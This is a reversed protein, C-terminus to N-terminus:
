ELVYEIKTINTLDEETTLNIQQEQGAGITTSYLVINTYKINNKYFVIELQNIDISKDTNNSITATYNSTNERTMISINTIDLNKVKTDKLIDKQSPLGIGDITYEPETDKNIILYISVGISVLIILISGIVLIKKKDM